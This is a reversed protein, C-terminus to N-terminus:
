RLNQLGFAVFGDREVGIEAIAQLPPSVIATKSDIGVVDGGNSVVQHPGIPPPIEQVAEVLLQETVLRDLPPVGLFQVVIDERPETVARCPGEEKEDVVEVGVVGVKGRCGIVLLEPSDGSRQQLLGPLQTICLGALLNGGLVHSGDDASVVIREGIQMLAQVIEQLLELMRSDQVVGDDDDSGVVSLTEPVMLSETMGRANVSFHQV